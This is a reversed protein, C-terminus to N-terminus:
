LIDSLITTFNLPTGGKIFAENAPALVLETDRAFRHVLFKSPWIKVNLLQSRSFVLPTLTISGLSHFNLHGVM